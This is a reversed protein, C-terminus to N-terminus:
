KRWRRKPIRIEKNLLSYLWIAIGRPKFVLLALLFYPLYEAFEGIYYKSVITLPSIMLTGVIPGYITAAGGLLTWIIPNFSMSFSYLSPGIVKVFHAYLGGAFGAFMGAIIFAMIKYKSVNIGSLKALLENEAILYFALSKKSHVIKWMIIASLIMSFYIIYYNVIIDASLPQIGSLGYEGGSIDSLGYIVIPSLVFPLILTALGLYARRVRTAIVGPLLGVFGGFVIGLPITVFPPIGFNLNIVGVIYATSGIFLAHGLNEQGSYASVFNWSLAFIAYIYTISLISLYYPVDFFPLILGLVICVFGVLNSGRSMKTKIRAIWWHAYGM